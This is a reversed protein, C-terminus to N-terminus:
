HSLTIKNRFIKQVDQQLDKDKLFSTVETLSPIEPYSRDLFTELVLRLIDEFRPGTNQHYVRSELLKILESITRDKVILEDDDLNLDLPNLVPIFDTRSLDILTVENQRFDPINQLVHDVLDGHPDIITVGKGPVIVDQLAMSKLLNTKGSGTRGIIYTHKLRDESSIKVDIAEDSKVTRTSAKGLMIGDAPFENETTVRNLDIKKSVGYTSGTPPHFITLIEAASKPNLNVPITSDYEIIEFDKGGSVEIGIMQQISLPIEKSSGLIIRLGLNRPSLFGDLRIGELIYKATKPKHTYISSISQNANSIDKNKSILKNESQDKHFAFCNMEIYIPEKLSRLLDHITGWDPPYCFDTNDNAIIVERSFHRDRNIERYIKEYEDSSFSYSLSYAGTFTIHILQGLGERLVEIEEESRDKTTCIIDFCAQMHNFEDKVTRLRYCIVLNSDQSRSLTKLLTLQKTLSQLAKPTTYAGLRVLSVFQRDNVRELKEDQALQNYVTKNSIKHRTERLDIRTLHSLKRSQKQYIDLDHGIGLDTDQAIRQLSKHIHCLQQYRWEDITITKNELICHRALCRTKNPANNVINALTKLNNKLIKHENKNKSLSDLILKISSEALKIDIKDNQMIKELIEITKCIEYDEDKGSYIIEAIAYVQHEVANLSTPKKLDPNTSDWDLIIIGESSSPLPM